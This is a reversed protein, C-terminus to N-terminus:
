WKELFKTEEREMKLNVCRALIKFDLKQEEEEVDYVADDM